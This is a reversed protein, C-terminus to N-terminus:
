RPSNRGRGRVRDPVLCHSFEWAWGTQKSTLGWPGVCGALALGWAEALRCWFGVHARSDKCWCVQPLGESNYKLWLPEPEKFYKRPLIHFVCYLVSAGYILKLIGLRLISEGMKSLLSLSSSLHRLLSNQSGSSWQGLESKLWPLVLDCGSASFKKHSALCSYRLWCCRNGHHQNAPLQSQFHCHFGLGSVRYPM